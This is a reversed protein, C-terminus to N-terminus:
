CLFIIKIKIFNLKDRKVKMSNSIIKIFKQGDYTELSKEGMHETFKIYRKCKLWDGTTILNKYVSHLLLRHEIKANSYGVTVEGYTSFCKWIEM